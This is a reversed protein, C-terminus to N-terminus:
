FDPSAVDYDSAVLDAPITGRISVAVKRPVVIQFERESSLPPSRVVVPGFDDGEVRISSSGLPATAASGTPVKVCDTRLSTVSCVEVPGALPKQQDDVLNITVNVGRAEHAASSLLVVLIGVEAAVSRM